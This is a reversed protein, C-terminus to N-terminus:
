GGKSFMKEFLTRVLGKESRGAQLERFIANSLDDLQIDTIIEYFLPDIKVSSVRSAPLSALSYTEGGFSTADPIARMFDKQTKKPLLNRLDDPLILNHRLKVVFERIRLSGDILIDMVDGMRMEKAGLVWGQNSFEFTGAPLQSIAVDQIMFSDGTLRASRADLLKTRSLIFFGVKAKFCCVRLPSSFFIIDKVKIRGPIKTALLSKISVLNRRESSWIGKEM